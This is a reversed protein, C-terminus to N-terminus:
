PCSGWSGLVVTIDAGDVVGDGNLDNPPGGRGWAGLLITLDGGDVVGDENLDAPCTPKDKSVTLYSRSAAVDFTGDADLDSLLVVDFITGPVHDTATVKFASNGTQGPALVHYSYLPIGPPAVGLALAGGAVISYGFLSTETGANMVQFQQDISEGVVLPTPGAQDPPADFCWTPLPGGSGVNTFRVKGLSSLSLGTGSENVSAQLCATSNGGFQCIVTIPITVCGGPSIPISGQTPSFAIPPLVVTCGAGPVSSVSWDYTQLSQTNNCITLEQTVNQSTPHCCSVMPKLHAISGTQGFCPNPACSSGAGHFLGGALAACESQTMIACVSQGAGAPLYCCAGLLDAGCMPLNVCHTRTCCEKLHLSHLSIPFCLTSGPTAGTITISIPGSTQLPNIGAAYGVYDPEITVGPPAEFYVHYIIEQTLNDFQFTYTYDGPMGGPTCIISETESRVQLCSCDPTFCLIQSCCAELAADLLTVVFCFETDAELGTFDVATSFSSGNPITQVINHPTAAVPTGPPLPTIRVREATVGSNNEITIKATVASTGDTACIVDDLTMTCAPERCIKMSCLMAEGAPMCCGTAQDFDIGRKLTVQVQLFRGVVGTFPVNDQVNTWAGSPLQNDTARVRVEVTSGNTLISSWDLTGWPMGAAGGDHIFTWSGQPATKLLQDGTKDSYNYPEAGPGLNVTLDVQGCAGLAPDIRMANNTVRNSTWVKGNSDIAVGYAGVGGIGHTTDVLPVLGCIVGSTSLRSVYNNGSAAVWVSGDHVVIGRGLNPMGSAFMATLLGSPKLRAVMPGSYSSTWINCTEPDFAVGYHTGSFCQPVGVSPDYRMITSPWGSSWLVGCADVLGGYGGGCAGFLTGPVTQATAHDLLEFVKNTYGGVWIDNNGDVAIHRVNTGKTRVFATVCEDVATSVGGNMDAGAANTWPLHTPVYDVGPAGTSRPYGISTRILGDGNRDECTCYDFPGQLYGGNPTPVGAANVETGGLVLGVRTVSGKAVGGSSTAEDRNGVWANGFADVTTRSPNKLMNQPATWYEGVVDGEKIEYNPMDEVAIRVMTGRLSNAVVLFPWPRVPDDKLRLCALKSNPQPVVELNFRYGAQFDLETEYTECPASGQQLGLMAGCSSVVLAMRAFWVISTSRRLSAM